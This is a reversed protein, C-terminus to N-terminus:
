TGLYQTYKPVKNHRSNYTNNIPSLGGYPMVIPYSYFDTPFVNNQMICVTKGVDM